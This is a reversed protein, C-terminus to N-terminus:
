SYSGDSLGERVVDAQDTMIFEVAEAEAVAVAEAV